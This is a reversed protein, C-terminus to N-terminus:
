LMVEDEIWKIFEPSHKGASALKPAWWSNTKYSKLHTTLAFGGHHLGARLHGSYGATILPKAVANYASGQCIYLARAFGFMPEGNFVRKTQEKICEHLSTPAEFSAFDRDIPVLMLVTAQPVVKKTAEYDSSYGEAVAEELKEFKRPTVASDFDLDEVWIKKLSLPTIIIPKKGDSLVTERNFLINGPVFDDSLKGTKGVINLYPIVLDGRDFDGEIGSMGSMGPLSPIEGADGSPLAPPLSGAGDDVVETEETSNGTVKTDM